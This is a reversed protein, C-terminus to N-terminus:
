RLLQTLTQLLTPRGYSITECSKWHTKDRLLRRAILSTDKNDYLCVLGEDELQHPTIAEGNGRKVRGREVHLSM